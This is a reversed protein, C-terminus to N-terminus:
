SRLKGENSSLRSYTKKNGPQRGVTFFFSCREADSWLLESM